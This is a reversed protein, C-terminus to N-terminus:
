KEILKMMLDKIYLAGLNLLGVTKRSNDAIIIVAFGTRCSVLSCLMIYVDPETFPLMVCWFM